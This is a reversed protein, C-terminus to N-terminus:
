KLTSFMECSNSGAGELSGGYDNGMRILGTQKMVKPPCPKAVSM